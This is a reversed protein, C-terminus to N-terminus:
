DVMPKWIRRRDERRNRRSLVCRSGKRAILALSRALDKQVLVKVPKGTCSGDAHLFIRATAQTDQVTTRRAATCPMPWKVSVSPSARKQRSIHGAGHSRGSEHHRVEGAGARPRGGHRARGYSLYSFRARKKDVKGASDLYMDHVPPQRRWRVTISPLPKTRIAAVHVMMFGGGGLNGARPLTVALAFGVAVAADVANGGKKLIDVGVRTATAEQSSVMGNEAVVPHFIDRSSIIAADRAPAIASAALLAICLIGGMWMRLPACHNRSRYEIM